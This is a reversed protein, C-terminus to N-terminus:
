STLMKIRSRPLAVGQPSNPMAMSNLFDISRRSSLGSALRSFGCFFFPGLYDYFSAPKGREALVLNKSVFYLLYLSCYSAFLHFPLIFGLVVPHTATSDFLALFVPMYILAYVVAFRFFGM